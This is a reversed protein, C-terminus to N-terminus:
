EKAGMVTKDNNYRGVERYSREAPSTMKMFIMQGIRDGRSLHIPFNGINKIEMTLVSGSWGPDCWGAMAHELGRRALSSKLQFQACIDDPLNFIEKSALLLFENPLVRMGREPILKLNQWGASFDIVTDGIRIDYSAPNLQADNFPEIMGRQAYERIEHDPLIM